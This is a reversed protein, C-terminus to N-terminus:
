SRDFRASLITGAHSIHESMAGRAANSDQRRFADIIAEHDSASAEPWGDVQEYFSRPIYRSVIGLIQGIKPSDALYSIKRHFEHNSREVEQWKKRRSAALLDFHLAELEDVDAETAEAVARAALEGALFSHVTFIDQIDAASLQKVVFGIGPESSLFGETKLSQLAERAPTQSIGLELGIDEPRVVDGPQFSGALIQQRVWSMASSSMSGRKM